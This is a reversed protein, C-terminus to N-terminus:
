AGRPFARPSGTATARLWEIIVAAHDIMVWSDHGVASPLRGRVLGRSGSPGTHQHPRGLHPLRHDQNQDRREAAKAGGGRHWYPGMYPGGRHWYPGM